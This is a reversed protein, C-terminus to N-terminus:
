EAEAVEAKISPFYLIVDRGMSDSNFNLLKPIADEFAELHQDTTADQMDQGLQIIVEGILRQCASYGGSIGVCEKGYMGRGSYDDRFSVEGSYECADKLREILNVKAM